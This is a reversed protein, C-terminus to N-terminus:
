LLLDVTVISKLKLFKHRFGFNLLAYPVIAGQRAMNALQMPDVFLSTLTQLSLINTLSLQNSLRMGLYDLVLVPESQAM